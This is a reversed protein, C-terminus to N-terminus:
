PREWQRLVAGTRDDVYRVSQIEVNMFCAETRFVFPANFTAARRSAACVSWRGPAWPKTNAVVEFRLHPALARGEDPSITMRHILSSAGYGGGSRPGRSRGGVEAIGWETFHRLTVERRGGLATNAEGMPSDTVTRAALYQDHLYARDEWLSVQPEVSGWDVVLDNQGSPDTSIALTQSQVDYRWRPDLPRSVDDAEHEGLVLYSLIIQQAPAAQTPPAAFPDASPMVTAASQLYAEVEARGWAVEQAASIMPSGFALLVAPSAWLIRSKM